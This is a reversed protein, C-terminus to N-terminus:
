MQAYRHHLGGAMPEAIIWGLREIVPPDTCRKSRWTRPRKM